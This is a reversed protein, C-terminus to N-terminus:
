LRDLLGDLPMSEWRVTAGVWVSVERTPDPEDTMWEGSWAAVAAGLREGPASGPDRVVPTLNVRAPRALDPLEDGETLEVYVQGYTTEPLLLLVARVSDLETVDGAVLV